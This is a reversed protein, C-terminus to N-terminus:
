LLKLELFLVRVLRSKAPKSERVLLSESHLAFNFVNFKLLIQLIHNLLLCLPTPLLENFFQFVLVSLVLKGCFESLSLQLSCQSKFFSVALNMLLVQLAGFGTIQKDKSEEGM